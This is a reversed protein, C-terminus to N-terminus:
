YIYRLARQNYCEDDDHHFRCHWYLGFLVYNFGQNMFCESEVILIEKVENNLAAFVKELLWDWSIINKAYGATDTYFTICCEDVWIAQPMKIGRNNPYNCHQSMGDKYWM